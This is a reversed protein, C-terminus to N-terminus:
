APGGNLLRAVTRSLRKRTAFGLPSATRTVWPPNQGSTRKRGRSEYRNPIIDSPTPAARRQFSYHRFHILRTARRHQYIGVM